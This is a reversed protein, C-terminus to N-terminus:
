NLDYPYPSHRTKEYQDILPRFALTILTSLDFYSPTTPTAVNCGRLAYMYTLDSLFRHAEPDKAAAIHLTRAQLARKHLPITPDTLARAVRQMVEIDLLQSRYLFKPM